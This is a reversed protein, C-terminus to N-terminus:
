KGSRADKEFPFNYAVDFFDFQTIDQQHKSPYFIAAGKQFSPSLTLQKNYISSHTAVWYASLLAESWFMSGSKTNNTRIFQSSGAVPTPPVADYMATLNVLSYGSPGWVGCTVSPRVQIDFAPADYVEALRDSSGDFDMRIQHVHCNEFINNLYPLSPLVGAATHNSSVGTITWTLGSQNTFFQSNVALNTPQCTPKVRNTFYSPWDKFWIGNTVTTNPNDAFEVVLTYSNQVFNLISLLVLLIVLGIVAVPTFWRYPYPKTIAYNFFSSHM